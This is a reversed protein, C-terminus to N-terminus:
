LPLRPILSTLIWALLGLPVWRIRAPVDAAALGFCVAGVVLLVVMLTEM